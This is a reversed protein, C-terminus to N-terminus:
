ITSEFGGSKNGSKKKQKRAASVIFIIFTAVFILVQILDDM